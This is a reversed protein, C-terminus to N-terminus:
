HRHRLGVREADRERIGLEAPVLRAPGVVEALGVPGLEFAHDAAITRAVGLADGLAAAGVVLAGPDAFCGHGMRGLASGHGIPSWCRSSGARSDAPAAIPGSQGSYSTNRRPLRPSFWTWTPDSCAASASM